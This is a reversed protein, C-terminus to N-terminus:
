ELPMKTNKWPCKQSSRPNLLQLPLLSVLQPATVTALPLNPLQWAPLLPSPSFHAPELLIQTPCPAPTLIPLSSCTEAQAGHSRM